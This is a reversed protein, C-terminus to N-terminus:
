HAVVAAATASSCAFSGRERQANTGGHHAM